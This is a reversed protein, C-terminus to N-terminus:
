NQNVSLVLFQLPSQEGTKVYFPFKQNSFLCLLPKSKALLFEKKVITSLRNKRNTVAIIENTTVGIIIYIIPLCVYNFDKTVLRAKSCILSTPVTDLCPCTETICSIAHVQLIWHYVIHINLRDIEPMIIKMIRFELFNVSNLPCRNEFVTLIISIM